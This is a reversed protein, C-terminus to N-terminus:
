IGLIGVVGRVTRKKYCSSSLNVYNFKLNCTVNLVTLNKTNVIRQPYVPNATTNSKLMKKKIVYIRSVQRDFTYM